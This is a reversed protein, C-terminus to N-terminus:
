LCIACAALASPAPASRRHSRCRCPARRAPSERSRGGRAARREHRDVTARERLAHELRLQEAVRTSREGARDGIGLPDELLRVAARHKEVLDALGRRRQLDLQKAHQLLALYPRDAGAPHHVDVDADDRRGVDIEIALDRLLAEPLIEEVPEAHDDNLHRREAVAALVDRQQDLREQVVRAAAGSAADIQRRCRDVASVEYRHGPM